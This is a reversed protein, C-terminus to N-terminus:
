IILREIHFSQQRNLVLITEFLKNEIIPRYVPRSILDSMCGAHATAVLSVGCWGAHLLAQCDEAATIEDIAITTPSMTRLMIDIGRPKSCGSLVDTNRGVSFCFSGHVRPFIEEREDVVSVCANGCNSRKRILDRLLTTKGCGPSGIILVSTNNKPAADAIGPFDRAVRICLSTLNGAQTVSGATGATHGCIGIRHGGQVTIYGESATTATWPSYRSGANICFHLDEATVTRELLKMKDGFHMSPPANLRLRLERLTDKGQKDVEDRMWPPLVSLFSQWACIM